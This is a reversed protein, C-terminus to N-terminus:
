RSATSYNYEILGFREMAAKCSTLYEKLHYQIFIEENWATDTLLGRDKIIFASAHVLQGSDLEIQLEKLLYIDDEFYIIRKLSLKDVNYHIVGSTNHTDSKIIGPYIKDKLLLCEYGKLLVRESDFCKGAVIRMVEPISLTGYSFINQQRM